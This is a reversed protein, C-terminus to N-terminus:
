GNIATVELLEDPRAIVQIGFRRSIHEITTRLWAADAQSARDLRKQRVYLPIMQLSLM